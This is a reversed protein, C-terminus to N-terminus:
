FKISSVDIEGSILKPLLTDRVNELVDKQIGNSYVHELLPTCIDNFYKITKIPPIKITFDSIFGKIDLNKIGTTGNEYSFFVGLDYLYLWYYYMFLGYEEFPRLVKCFNTCLIANEHQKVVTNSMYSARGTSQTPSGGSIEVIIDNPVVQKKQYSKIQVYRTPMNGIYGQNLTPIDAGRICYVKKNYKETPTEKGWDGSIIDIILDSFTGKKWNISNNSIFIKKFLTKIQNELNDNIKNNINIKRQITDLIITIKQQEDLSPLNIEINEIMGKTLAKRTAGSSALQLLYEKNLQLYYLLYSPLAKTVDARIIAVHQNVRAPLYYKEVICSRAVSDGTINLLIDNELVEVNQLKEAQIRNIHALGDSSFKYDLINQSRILSIGGDCYSQEGGKPTAGSGIKICIDSFKVKKM